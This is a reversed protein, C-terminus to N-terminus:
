KLVVFKGSVTSSFGVLGIEYRYAGAPLLESSIDFLRDGIGGAQSKQDSVLNGRADYIWIHAQADLDSHYPIFFHSASSTLVPDPHVPLIRLPLNTGYRLFNTLTSDGCIFQIRVSGSNSAAGLSCREYNTDGGNLKLDGFDLDTSSSDSVTAFFVVEFMPSSSDISLEAGTTQITIPLYATKFASRLEPGFQTVNSNPVHNIFGQPAALPTLLDGNYSLQFHISTLGRNKVNLGSYIQATTNQGALVTDHAAVTFRLTDTPLVYISTPFIANVSAVANTDIEWTANAVGSQTPVFTVHVIDSDNPGLSFPVQRPKPDAILYGGGSVIRKTIRLSDCGSNHYVLLLNRTQCLTITDTNKPAADLVFRPPSVVTGVGTVPIAIRLASDLSTLSIIVSDLYTKTGRPVFHVDFSISDGPPIRSANGPVNVLKFVSDYLLAAGGFTITDCLPNGITILTDAFRCTPVTGLDIASPITYANQLAVITQISLTTDRTKGQHETHLTISSFFAGAKTPVLRVRFKLTGGPLIAYVFNPSLGSSDELLFGALTPPSAGTIFLTDCGLNQIFLSTDLTNCPKLTDLKLAASSMGISPQMGKASLTVTVVTDLVRGLTSSLYKVHIRATITTDRHYEKIPNWVVHISDGSNTLYTKPLQPLGALSLSGSKVAVSSSDEFGISVIEDGNCYLNQFFFSQTTTSCLAGSLSLQSPSLNAQLPPEYISGDGGDRTKWIQGNNDFAYVIGGNCGTVAFRTDKDCSPGGVSKWTVGNDTSRYLGSFGANISLGTQVQIYLTEGVGRIHGTSEFSLQAAINWTHGFDSSRYVDSAIVKDTEPSTYFVPTGKVGYMSWAEAPMAPNDPQWTLGGDATNYWNSQYGSIAGHMDDVFDV